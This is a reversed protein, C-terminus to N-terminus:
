DVPPLPLPKRMTCTRCLPLTTYSSVLQRYTPSSWIETITQGPVTV